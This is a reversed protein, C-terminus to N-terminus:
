SFTCYFIEMRPVDGDGQFGTGLHESAAKQEECTQGECAATLGDQERSLNQALTSIDM